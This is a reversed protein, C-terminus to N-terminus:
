APLCLWYAVCFTGHGENRLARNRRQPLIPHSAFGALLLCGSAREASFLNFPCPQRLWLGKRLHAAVM